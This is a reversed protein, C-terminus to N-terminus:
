KKELFPVLVDEVWRNFKEHADDFNNAKFLLVGWDKDIESDMNGFLKYMEDDELENFFVDWSGEDNM